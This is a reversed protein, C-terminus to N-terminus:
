SIEMLHISGTYPIKYISMLIVFKQIYIIFKAFIIQTRNLLAIYIMVSKIYKETKIPKLYM